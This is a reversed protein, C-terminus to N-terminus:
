TRWYRDSLACGACVLSEAPRRTWLLHRYHNIKEGNWVEQLTQRSLDGITDRPGWDESCTIARGDSLINLSTFPLPCAPVLRNLVPHVLKKWLDPHRKKIREYSELTGARNTLECFTVKVGARKWYSAFAYEEGENERQRLFKVSVRQKGLRSILALTNEVVRHFSLGQRIKGFTEERIADISVSVHDIGSAVLRDIMATTLPEANTVIMIRAGPGIIKRALQVRDPLKRDLLPENQLMLVINKTAENRGVEGIIHSYLDDNMVNGSASKSLSSYPCMVCTANCRDITQIHIWMPGRLRTYRGQPDYSRVNKMWMAAQRLKNSLNNLAVVNRM